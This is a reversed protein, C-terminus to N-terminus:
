STAKISRLGLKYGVGFFRIPREKRLRLQERYWTRKAIIIHPRRVGRQVALLLIEFARKLYKQHEGLELASYM